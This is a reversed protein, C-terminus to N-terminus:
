SLPRHYVKTFVAVFMSTGYVAPTPRTNYDTYRNEVPQVTRHEFGPPALNEAVTWVPGAAWGAEQVIPVPHKGLYLAAPAHSENRVGM